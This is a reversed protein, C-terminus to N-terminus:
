IFHLRREGMARQVYAMCSLEAARSRSKAPSGRLGNATDREQAAAGAERDRADETASARRAPRSQVAVRSTQM